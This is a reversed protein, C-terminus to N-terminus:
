QVKFCRPTNEGAYQEHSAHQLGFYRMSKRKSELRGGHSGSAGSERVNWRM